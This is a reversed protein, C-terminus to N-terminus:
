LCAAMLYCSKIKVNEVKETSDRLGNLSNHVNIIVSCYYTFNITTSDSFFVHISWHSLSANLDVQIDHFCSSQDVVIVNEM